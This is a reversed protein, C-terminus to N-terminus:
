GGGEVDRWGGWGRIEGRVEEGYRSPHTVCAHEDGLCADQEWWESGFESYQEDFAIHTLSGSFESYIRHHPQPPLALGTSASTTSDPNVDGEGESLIPTPTLTPSDSRTEDRAKSKPVLFKYSFSRDCCNRRSWTSVGEKDKPLPRNGMKTEIPRLSERTKHLPFLRTM